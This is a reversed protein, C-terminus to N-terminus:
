FTIRLSTRKPKTNRKALIQINSFSIHLSTLSLSAYERIDDAANYFIVIQAVDYNSPHRTVADPYQFEILDRDEKHLSSYPVLKIGMRKLLSMISFPYLRVGFDEIFDAVAERIEDYRSEEALKGM